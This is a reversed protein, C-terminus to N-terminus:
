VFPWEDIVVDTVGWKYTPNSNRFEIVNDGVLQNAAIINFQFAGTGNNPTTGVFGLSVDNLLVEVEDVFDIAFGTFDLLLDETTGTFGARM